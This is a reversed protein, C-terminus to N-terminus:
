EHRLFDFFDGALSFSVALWIWALGSAAIVGVLLALSLFPVEMGPAFIQPGVAALAVAVGFLLGLAMMGAHECFVMKKLVGKKYGMAQLMALEHRRDLINRLVVVGLGISGLVLGLGGLIQFMSIYTNEVAAFEALREGAPTLELGFDRLAAALRRRLDEVYRDEGDVLFVGYDGAGFKEMFHRDSVVLGGQLVSDNIIGAIRVNFARGRRDTYAIEDGVSKGLAWRVTPADGVAPVVGEGFDKELLEWGRGTGMGRGLDIFAFREALSAPDVGLLRPQQARNLNFCSADDGGRVRMPVIKFDGLGEPDFGASERGGPTSLDYPVGIASRGFLAFGGTGSDRRHADALADQRNAGVAIVVFVGASLLAIVALTRGSKRAANRLAFGRLHVMPKRFTAAMRNLGYHFVGLGGVLLLSGAGFFVGAEEAGTAARGFTLLLLVAAALCLAALFLGARSSKRNNTAYHWGGGGSLIERVPCKMKRRVSWWIVVMSLLFTGAVGALVTVWDADFAIIMHEGAQGFVHPLWRVMMGTYGLGAFAGVSVGALALLGGECALLKKVTGDTWGLAKLLGIQDTRSEVAFVFVLGTLILAAVILFMNFGIFLQGFGMAEERAAFADERVNRFLLGVDAPSIRELLGEIVTERTVEPGYRVATLEGYPNAWMGRGAALTVFAKPTGRYVEWYREDKERIRDLEVPIGPAWDRCDEVGALGPFGPMLEKDAAPGELPVIERVGFRRSDEVLQRDVGFVYYMLEIEDGRGIGLDEALWENIIAEGDGTDPCVISHRDEGPTMASVTSYPTCRDEACISNVFYTLIGTQHKATNMAAESVVPDIFVRSSRLELRADSIERLELEADCLRWLEKLQANADDAALPSDKGGLLVVNARGARDLEGALWERCLLANFTARQSAELGFWGFDEVGLIEAVRLRFAVSLEAEPTLSISRPMMTPKSFRLVIDDGIEASLREALPSNLAVQGHELEMERATGGMAFFRDDVGLVNVENVPQRGDGDSAMGPLVLMAAGRTELEAALEDAIEERFFRDGGHMALETDGLRAEHMRQLSYDVSDGVALSGILIASGVVAALFVGISTWRYFTLTRVVLQLLQWNDMTILHRGPNRWWGDEM